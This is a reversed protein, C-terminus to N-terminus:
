RLGDIADERGVIASISAGQVHAPQTSVLESFGIRYPTNLGAERSGVWVAYRGGGVENVTVAPNHGEADDSCRLRGSPDLVALTTDERAWSVVRIAGLPGQPSVWFDPSEAVFGACLVPRDPDQFEAFRREAPVSGGAIGKAVQPDPLFGRGLRVTGHIPEPPAVDRAASSLESPRGTEAVEPAPDQDPPSACAM